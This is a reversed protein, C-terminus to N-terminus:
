GEKQCCKLTKAEINAKAMVGKICDIGNQYYDYEGFPIGFISNDINM